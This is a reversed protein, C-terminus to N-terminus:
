KKKYTIKVTATGATGIVSFRRLDAIGEIVFFDGIYVLHGESTTPATGDTRYRINGSEVTYIGIMDDYNYAALGLTSTGNKATSMGASISEYLATYGHRYLLEQALATNALSIGMVGAIIIFLKRIKFM